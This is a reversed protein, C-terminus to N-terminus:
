APESMEDERCFPWIKRRWYVLPSMMFLSMMWFFYGLSGHGMFVPRSLVLMPLVVLLIPIIVLVYSSLLLLKRWLGDRLKFVILLLLLIPIANCLWAVQLCISYVHVLPKSFFSSDKQGVEDLRSSYLLFAAIITKDSVSERVEKSPMFAEYVDDYFPNGVLLEWSMAAADHGYIVGKDRDPDDIVPLFFTVIFVVFAIGYRCALLKKSLTRKFWRSM